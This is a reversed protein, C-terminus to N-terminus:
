KAPMEKSMDKLWDPKVRGVTYRKEASDRSLDTAAFVSGQDSFMCNSQCPLVVGNQIEFVKWWVGEGSTPASFNITSNNGYGVAVHASSTTTISGSGAYHYVAFVYRASPDLYQITTTEPGYSTVDDLDLNDGSITDVKDSYYIHYQQEGAANYKVLHSDLDQPDIEWTLRISAQGEGLMERMNANGVNSQDARVTFYFTENQFGAKSLRLEYTGIVLNSVSYNGSADTVGSWEISNRSLVYNVGALPQGTTASVVMGALNGRGVTNPQLFFTGLFTGSQEITRGTVYNSPFQENHYGPASIAVGYTTNPLFPATITVNGHDDTIGDVSGQIRDNITLYVEAGIIPDFTTANDVEVQLDIKPANYADSNHLWAKIETLAAHHADTGRVNLSNDVKPEVGARGARQFETVYAPVATSHYYGKFNPWHSILDGHMYKGPVAEPDYQTVGLIRETVKSTGFEQPEQKVKSDAWAPSFRQGEYTILGDGGTYYRYENVPLGMLVLTDVPLRHEGSTNAIEEVFKGANRDIEFYSDIYSPPGIWPNVEWAEPTPEGAEHCSLQMCAEFMGVAALDQGRRFSGGDQDFIGSHPTGLTVLSQVDNSYHRGVAFDQLYARSLLGGFSHAIIHVKKQSKSNIRYIAAGLERAADKFRANTRWNFEFVAYKEQDLLEPLKGWTGHGGGLEGDGLSFISGPTFGHVFLVPTREGCTDEYSDESCLSFLQAADPTTATNTDPHAPCSTANNSLRNKINYGTQIEVFDAPYKRWSSWGNGIERKKPHSPQPKSLKSKARLFLAKSESSLSSQPVQRLIVDPLHLDLIKLLPASASITYTYNGNEDIARLVEFTTQGTVAGAPVTLVVDEWEDAIRGGEPGITGSAVVETVMVVIEGDETYARGNAKRTVKVQLSNASTTADRPVAYEIEGEPSLTLGSPGSVLTFSYKSNDEIADGVAVKVHSHLIKGKFATLLGEEGIVVKTMDQPQNSALLLSFIPTINPAAVANPAWLGLLSIVFIAVSAFFALSIGGGYKEKFHICSVRKGGVLGELLRM